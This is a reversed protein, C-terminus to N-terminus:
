AFIFQYSKTIFQVRKKHFREEKNAHQLIDLCLEVELDNQKSFSM